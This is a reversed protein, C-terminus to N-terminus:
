PVVTLTVTVKRTGNKITIIVDGYYGNIPITVNGNEDVVARKLNASVYTTGTSSDTLNATSGNGYTGTVTFSLTNGRRVTQSVPTVSLGSLVGSLDEAITLTVTASKTGNKITLIVDGYYAESPITVNGNVDIAARQTNATLYTTGTSGATLNATSGDGYIGIVSLGLTDGRHVTRSAPTVTLGTLVSSLDEAVTLTVTASKTGNKITLIVDGYYADSPITVNGNAYVVARRVNATVYTTGTSGATLNATSGDGYTGTVTLSLTDGRHVRQSVPTVALGTLETALTEVVTLTLSTQISGNKITLIVDGYYAESPITVNGNADVVARKANASIYTTGENGTTLVKSTGDSYTGTVALSLSDGRHVTQSSPTVSLLTLQNLTSEQVTLTVYGTNDGNRITLIVDGYLADSPITVDGDAGVVARRTNASVYTTGTSGATIDTVRGDGYTGSVSLKLTDGKHVAQSVPSASISIIKNSLDEQIKLTLATEVAGNRITIIVDGYTADNPVNVKGNADIIARHINSSTYTTGTSGSTFDKQSEDSYTGTVTLAAQEGRLLSTKEASAYLRTLYPGTVTIVSRVVLNNNTATITVQGINASEPIKALGNADIQVRTSDSSTYVTGATGASVDKTTGDSMAARTVMQISEGVAVVAKAPAISLSKVVPPSVIKVTSEGVIGNYSVQIKVTGLQASTSVQVLGNSSVSVRNPEASTYQVGSSGPTVDMVTGNALTATVTLQKSAGAVLSVNLPNIRLSEGTGGPITVECQVTLGSNEAEIYVTGPSASAEVTILGNQDVKALLPNSSRYVTNSTQLTVDKTTGDTMYLTTQLQLKEGPSLTVSNQSIGLSFPSVPPITIVGRVTFHFPSLDIGSSYYRTIDEISKNNDKNDRLYISSLKWTGLEDFKDIHIFAEYKETSYDKYFPVYLSKGSPKQYIAYFSNVGSLQDSSTGTLKVVASQSTESELSISLNGLSPAMLDPTTGTVTFTYVHLDMKPSQISMMSSDYVSVSNGANDYMTVNHLKWDGLEDYQDIPVSAEYIGNVQSLSAYYSKGSPKTLGLYARSVGSVDDTIEVRFKAYGGVTVPSSSLLEVSNLVPPATDTIGGALVIKYLSFDMTTEYSPYTTSDYVYTYNDKNDELYIYALVWEGSESYENFKFSGEYKSTTSNYYLEVRNNKIGNPSYYVAYARSIGSLDDVIDATLTVPDGPSAKSESVSLGSLAPPTTDPTPDEIVVDTSAFAALSPFVLLAILVCSMLKKFLKPKNRVKM